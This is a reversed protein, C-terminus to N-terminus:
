FSFKLAFQIQRESGLRTSQLQGFNPDTFNNNPNVFQPTNTLNFFEARFQLNYREGFAFNKFTSFDLNSIGPGVLYNRPTTGGRIEIGASNLPVASFAAPNFYQYPTTIGVSPNGILDPRVTPNGGNYYVDFPTGSSATYIVNVQWGGLVSNEIGNWTSGYKMGKGFPLAYLSTFVFRNRFDLDSSSKEAALDRYDVVSGQYNDFAGPSDDIAHSWTYNASFQLGHVFRRNLSVQLANYTSNGITAQTNIAGLAPFNVTNQPSNYYQRNYNFYTTLHTGKTGVYAISLSTNDSIQREFQLNWEQNSPTTNTPLAAISIAVNQPNNLNVQIPGKSPLPATAGV